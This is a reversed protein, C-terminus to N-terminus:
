EEPRRRLQQAARSREQFTGVDHERASRAEKSRFLRPVGVHVAERAADIRGVEAPRLHLLSGATPFGIILSLERMRPEPKITHDILPQVKWQDVEDRLRM